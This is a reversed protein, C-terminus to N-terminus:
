IALVKGAEAITECTVIRPAPSYHFLSLINLGFDKSGDPIVRVILGIGKQSLINMTRGIELACGPGFEELQSLDSLVRFGPLMEDLLQRVNEQSEAIEEARVRGIFSMHVLQKPPNITALVM